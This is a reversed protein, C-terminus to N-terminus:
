ILPGLDAFELGVGLSSWDVDNPVGMHQLDNVVGDEEDLEQMGRRVLESGREKMKSKTRRIRALRSVAESLKVQLESLQSQLSELAEGAAEEEAELKKQQDLVRMLSSAVLVGDCSRGRKVCEYCRSSDEVMRCPIKKRFCYTCPMDSDSGHSLIFSALLNRERTKRPVSKSVRDTM